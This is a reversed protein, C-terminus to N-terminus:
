TSIVEADTRRDEAEKALRNFSRRSFPLM